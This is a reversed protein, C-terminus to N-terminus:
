GKGEPPPAGGIQLYAELAAIKNELIAASKPGDAELWATLQGSPGEYEFVAEPFQRLWRRTVELKEEAFALRAKALALAKEQDTTDPKRDGYRMMKRRALEQKALFVEEECEKVAKSWFKLQDQLWDEFRRIDITLASLAEKAAAVYTCLAAKFDVLAEVSRVRASSM